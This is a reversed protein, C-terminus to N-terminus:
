VEFYSEEFEQQDAHGRCRCTADVSLSKSEDSSLSAMGLPSVDSDAVLLLAYSCVRTGAPVAMQPREIKDM